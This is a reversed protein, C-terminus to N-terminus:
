GDRDDIHASPFILDENRFTVEIWILCSVRKNARKRFRRKRVHKLPPTIGHPFIFDEINFAREKGKGKGNKDEGGELMGEDLEEEVLLMQSIDAVKVSGGGVGTMKQSEVLTPLDVLKAGFTRQGFTFVARRSDKFQFGVDSTVQKKEVMARLAPAVSLPVRLIFHEEFNLPEEPDSDLERDWGPGSEGDGKGGDAAAANRAAKAAAAAAAKTLPKSKVKPITKAEEVAREQKIKSRSPRSSVAAAPLDAVPTRSNFPADDSM